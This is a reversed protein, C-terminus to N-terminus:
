SCEIGLSRMPRCTNDLMEFLKSRFLPSQRRKGLIDPLGFKYVLELDAPLPRSESNDLKAPLYNAKAVSDLFVINEGTACCVEGVVGVNVVRLWDLIERHLLMPTDDVELAVKRDVNRNYVPNSPNCLSGLHKASACLLM